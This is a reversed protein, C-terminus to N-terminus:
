KKVYRHRFPYSLVVKEILISSKYQGADLAKITEDIVCQDFQSLERGLAYGLMKRTLNKIFEGKRKMLTNKLEIPGNFKEGSPLVGVADIPQNNQTTRYRGIPDYNELGFGLPDMRAHCSACEAKTRHIELQKRLTLGKPNRDDPPLEGANPPPPPMRSGLIDELVWKGRLVPSTRLPYSTVTLVGPMCLVGGRTRDPLKVKQFAEGKIDPMGYIKALPENLFTYDTDLLELLSRDDRLIHDFLLVPEQRMSVSLSETFEPFRGADPRVTDGLPRLDLWQLTFSEALGKSRPDLLMRRVQKRLVEEDSLENSAALKLLEDDPMSAWLFYSVRSALPYGILPTIGEKEPEPEVLFLFHPSILVAKLPLRLAKDFSDGRIIAKDFVTLLREVEVDTVPRRFAREAFSKVIRKADDRKPSTPLKGLLRERASKANGDLIAVLIQDAAALLKEIHIPSTFLADGNNDFGEGGSGDAPFRDAPRLDLGILDRVSNNYEARNLRRSMVHGSYFNQTQDTALTKCDSKSARAVKAWGDLAEREAATPQPSKEPPMEKNRVRTVAQDWASASKPALPTKMHRTIDFEGQKKQENHCKVCYKQLVPRIDRDFDPEAAFSPAVCFALLGLTYLISRM